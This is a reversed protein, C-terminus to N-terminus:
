VHRIGFKYEFGILFVTSYNYHSEGASGDTPIPGNNAPIFGMSNRAELSLTFKQMIPIGIGANLLGGADFRHFATNYFFGFIDFAGIQTNANALASSYLGGEIFFAIKQGLTLRAVVPITVYDLEVNQESYGAPQSELYGIGGRREYDLGTKISWLRSFNYRFTFGGIPAPVIRAGYVYGGYFKSVGGGAEAGVAFKTDPVPAVPALDSAAGFERQLGLLLITSYTHISGANYAPQHDINLIGLENRVELNASLKKTFRVQIGAGLVADLDIRKFDGSLNFTGYSLFAETSSNENVTGNALFGVKPGANIFFRIKRKGFSFNALVPISIFDLKANAPGDGYLGNLPIYYWDEWNKGRESIREYDIATRISFLKTFNYQFTFGAMGAVALRAPSYHFYSDFLKSVGPGGEIGIAFRSSDQAFSSYIIGFNFIFSLLPLRLNDM